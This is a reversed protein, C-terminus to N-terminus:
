LEMGYGIQNAEWLFGWAYLQCNGLKETCINALSLIDNVDNVRYVIDRTGALIYAQSIKLCFSFIVRMMMSQERDVECFVLSDDAYQLHSIAM